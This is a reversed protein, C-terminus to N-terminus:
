MKFDPTGDLLNFKRIRRRANAPAANRLVAQLLTALQGFRVPENEEQPSLLHRHSLEVLSDVFVNPPRPRARGLFDAGAALGRLGRDVVAHHLRKFM